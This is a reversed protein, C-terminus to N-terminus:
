QSTRDNTNPYNYFVIIVHCLILHSLCVRGYTHTHTGQRRDAIYANVGCELNVCEVIRTNTEKVMKESETDEKKVETWRLMSILDFYRM